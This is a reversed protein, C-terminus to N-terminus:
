EDKGQAICEPSAPCEAVVWGEDARELTVPFIMTTRRRECLVKSETAACSAAGFAGVADRPTGAM